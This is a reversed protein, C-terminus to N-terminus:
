NQSRQQMQALNSSLLQFSSPSKSARSPQLRFKNAEEPAAEDRPQNSSFDTSSKYRLASSGPDARLLLTKGVKVPFFLSNCSLFPFMEIRLQFQEDKFNRM